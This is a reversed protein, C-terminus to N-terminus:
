RSNGEVGLSADRTINPSPGRSSNKVILRKTTPGVSSKNQNDFDLSNSRTPMISSLNSM